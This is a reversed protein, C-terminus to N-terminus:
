RLSKEEDNNVVSKEPPDVEGAAAAVAEPGESPESEPEDRLDAGSKALAMLQRLAWRLSREHDMEYRHMLRLEHSTDASAAEMARRRDPGPDRAEKRRKRAPAPGDGRGGDSATSGAVTEEAEGKPLPKGGPKRSALLRASAIPVAGATFLPGGPLPGLLLMLRTHFRESWTPPAPSWPPTWSAGPGQLLRDLGLGTSHLLSLAAAPTTSSSTSPAGTSPPTGSTTSARTRRRRRTPRPRRVQLPHLRRLRCSAVAALEVLVARPHPHPPRWDDSFGKLEADFEDRDEGPLLGHRACLGHKLGNFRTRETNRPGTSRKSNRRNAEIQARTTM